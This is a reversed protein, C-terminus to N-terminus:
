HHYKGGDRYNFMRYLQEAFLVRMLQHPFVLKSFSWTFDARKRTTDNVGFAGGIIFVLPRGYQLWADLKSSMDTTSLQIGREDLLVVYDGPRVIKLIAECEEDVSRGNPVLRWDVEAWRSLRKEYEAVLSSVAMDSTKGVTIVTLKM